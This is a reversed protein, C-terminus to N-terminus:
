KEISVTTFERSIRDGTKSEIAEVQTAMDAITFPSKKILQEMKENDYLTFGYKTFPLIEMFSKQAFTINLRGGPKLVRYLESLLFEPDQWFYITNVTFIGDLYHDAFPIHLGDYLQFVAQKKEVFGQSHSVAEHRMAKSIELGYYTIGENQQLLYPLHKGNGHGLELIRSNEAIPLRDIAHVTMGINTTHMMDAVEIGMAGDPQRLQAALNKLDNDNM